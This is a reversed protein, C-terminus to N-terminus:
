IITILYKRQLTGKRKKKLDAIIWNTIKQKEGINKTQRMNKLIKIM